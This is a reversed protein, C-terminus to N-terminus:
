LLDLIPSKRKIPTIRESILQNKTLNFVCCGYFMRALRGPCKYDTKSVYLSSASETLTRQNSLGLYILLKDGNEEVLLARVPIFAGAKHRSVAAYTLQEEAKREYFQITSGLVLVLSRLDVDHYLLTGPSIFAM